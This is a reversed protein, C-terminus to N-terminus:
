PNGGKNYNFDIAEKHQDQDDDLDVALSLSGQIASIKGIVEKIVASPVVVQKELRVLYKFIKTLAKDDMRQATFPMTMDMFILQQVGQQMFYGTYIMMFDEFRECLANLESNTEAWLEFEVQYDFVQSYINLAEADGSIPNALYATNRYRPKIERTSDKGVTGPVKSKISYTIMPLELNKPDRGNPYDETFTGWNDGWAAKLLQHMLDTFDNFSAGRESQLRM